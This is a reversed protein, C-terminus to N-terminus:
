LPLPNFYSYVLRTFRAITTPATEDIGGDDLSRFLYVALVFDGGPSHVLGVDAQVDAVWGGKHAVRTGAPLGAVVRDRETNQELLRLMTQCREASLHSAAGELLPGRGQSCQWVWVWLQGMEAPTTRLLTDAATYPPPGEREPGHRPPIGQGTVLYDWGDYPMRQYTHRLGLGALAESMQLAGELAHELTAGGATAALLSNAADNDSYVIIQHLWTAQEDTLESLTAYARLMIALKMTSAASFVSGQNLGTVLRGTALDYVAVGAVGRWHSALDALEQELHRPDPRRVTLVPLTLARTAGPSRLIAAVREEAEALDIAEGARVAFARVPSGPTEVLRVVPPTLRAMLTALVVQLREHSYAVRLPIEAAPPAAVAEAILDPAPVAFDIELPALELAADGAEVMIPRYLPRLGSDLARLAEEVTLDGVPVGGVRVGSALRPPQPEPTPTVIPTAAARAPQKEAVVPTVTSLDGPALVGSLIFPQFALWLSLGLLV